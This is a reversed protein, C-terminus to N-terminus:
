RRWALSVVELAWKGTPSIIQSLKGDTEEFTTRLIEHRHVLTRFSEDLAKESLPGALRVCAPMHFAANGPAFKSLLWFREQAASAPM